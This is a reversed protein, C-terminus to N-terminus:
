VHPEESRITVGSITVNSAFNEFVRFRHNGDIVLNGAGPGTIHVSHRIQLEGLILLITGSVRTADITDGNIALAVAQPLSGPGGDNTNTVTITNANLAPSLGYCALVAVCVLCIKQLRILPNM